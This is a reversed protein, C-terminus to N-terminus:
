VNEPRAQSYHRRSEPAFDDRKMLSLLQPSMSDVMELRLLMKEKFSLREVSDGFASRRLHLPARAHAPAGTGHATSEGGCSPGAEEEWLTPEAGLQRLAPASSVHRMVLAGGGSTGGGSSVGGGATGEQLLKEVVNAVPARQVTMAGPVSRRDPLAHSAEAEARGGCGSPATTPRVGGGAAPTSLSSSSPAASAGRALPALAACQMAIAHPGTRAM